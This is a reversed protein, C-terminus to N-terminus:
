QGSQPITLVILRADQSGIALEKGDPSYSLSYAASVPLQQHHLPTGSGTDWVFLHGSYDVSAVRNWAPNFIARYIHDTHGTATRQSKGDNVNWFQWTKALGASLLYNADAYFQVSYLGDDVGEKIEKTQTGDLKWLRIVKDAGGSALAQGNPSFNVSYVQGTHGACKAVPKGDAVNWIQVSKDGSASALLKGDPSFDIGYVQATHGSMRLSPAIGASLWRKWTRDVSVSFLSREDATFGFGTVAATHGMGEQILSTTLKGEQTVLGYTRVMNDAGGTALKTGSKSWGLGTVTAPTLLAAVAQGDATKWIRVHKDDGGVAIFQGDTSIALTRLPGAAGAYAQQNQLGKTAWRIVQADEGTTVLSDGAPTFKVATAIGKHAKQIGNSTVQWVRSTADNASSVLTQGDAAFALRTVAATHGLFRELELGTTRDWLHIQLDDGCSAFLQGDPSFVAHHVPTAHPLATAPSLTQPAAKPDLAAPLAWIRVHKDISGAIVSKQDPSFAAQTVADACGALNAVVKGSAVDWLRLTKDVGGSLLLQGNESYTLTNVPGQHGSLVQQISLGFVRSQNDAQGAILTRPNLYAVNQPPHPTVIEEWLLGGESAYVRLRNDAQSVAILAGDPSYAVGTVAAPTEIRQILASTEYNWLYLGKDTLQADGGAAIQKLDPRVALRRLATQSGAFQRVMKGTADWLKLIRDDGSSLTLLGDPTLVVATTQMPHAAIVRTASLPSTRVTKDHSASIVSKGDATLAIAPIGATHGPFFQLEKGSVLDWVRAVAEDGSTAVRFGDTSVNMSRVPAPHTLTVVPQADATRWTRVTKDQGAALVQSGDPTLAVQTVIDTHGAFTRMAAGDALNWLRVTKDAGGSLLQEAQPVYALSTVAGEHGAILRLLSYPILKVSNDAGGVLLSKNDPLFALASTVSAQPLDQQLRGDATSFVRIHADGTSVALKLHDASYRIATIGAPQAIRPMAAFPSADFNWLMVSNDAVAGAVQGSDGRVALGTIAAPSGAFQRVAAGTLQWMKILKDDGASLLVSGDANFAVANAKGEHALIVRQATVTWQRFSKDAGGTYITKSDAGFALSHIVGTHGSFTELEKGTALDWVRVIGDDGAVAIKTLDASPSLSRISAPQPIIPGAAGDAANWIRIQRDAGGAIVKMGDATFKVSSVAETCGAYQTAAAGDAVNWARVTKDVGGSVLRDGAPNFTLSQVAGTHGTLARVASASVLHVQAEAGATILSKNDPAIAVAQLAGKGARYTQLVPGAPDWWRLTGDASSSAVRLSDATWAVGTVAGAHGTLVGAAAGDAANWLKILNDAGASALKTGDANLAIASVAAGHNISRVETGAAITWTRITSDAAASYLTAADKSVLLANVVGGHGKFERALKLDAPTWQKIINDSGGTFVQDGGASMAVSRIEAGHQDLLATQSGDGANWIRASKDLSGSVLAASDARWALSTVGATHGALSRIQQGNSMNWLVISNDASATALVQGNPSLSVANIAQKQAAFQKAAVLPLQWFRILGDQSGTAALQGNPHIAVALVPVETGTVAGLDAGDASKWVHLSGDASGTLIQAQDSSLALAQVAGTQGKLERAVQSNEPTVVRIVGDSAASVALKRDNSVAVGRVEQAHVPLEKAPVAPLQWVRVMGDAGSTAFLPQTPHLSVATVAGSHAGIETLAAGGAPKWIRVKGAADGSVVAQGNPQIGVATVPQPHGELSAIAKGDGQLLRVTQDAGATAILKGDASIAVSQLPKTYAALNMTPRVPSEWIRIFGDQGATAVQTGKPHFAIGQLVGAHATLESPSTGDAVNFFKLVGNAQGVALLSDDVNLALTMPPATLGAFTRLDKGTELLTQKVVQDAASSIAFTGKKNLVMATLANGHTTVPRPAAFPLQWYKLTGDLGSSVVTQTKPHAVLGTIVGNHAAVDAQPKGDGATWSRIGGLSDGAVVLQEDQTVAIATLPQPAGALQKLLKGDADFILALKDAAATVTLKGSPSIAIAQVPQSHGPLTKPVDVPPMQWVRITGDQGGSAILKGTPHFSLSPIGGTHGALGKLDTGDIKWFKLQGTASGTALQDFDSTVALATAAGPQGAFAKLEKAQLVDFLRVSQDASVTVAQKGDKSLALGSVPQSHGNLVRTPGLPRRNLRLAGDAGVTAIFQGDAALDMATASPVTLSSLLTGQAVDWVRVFGDATSAVVHKLDASLAVGTIPATLGPFDRLHQGNTGNWLRLLPGKDATVLLTGDPSVVTGIADGGLGGNALPERIPVDYLHIQRDLGATAFQQGNKSVALALVGNKHDAFTRLVQGTVRDWIKVTHDFSATYIFKGDPSYAVAYIPKTHGDLLRIQAPMPGPQQAGLRSVWCLMAVCLLGRRLGGRAKIM